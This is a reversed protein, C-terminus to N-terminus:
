RHAGAAGAGVLLRVMKTHAEGGRGLIIAELLATRVLRNVLERALV